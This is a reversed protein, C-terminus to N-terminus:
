SRIRRYTLNLRPQNLNRRKPLAHEHDIQMNEMLLLSGHELELNLTAKTTRNRVKFTRTEGFSLSAIFRHDLEKENDRHWGMSDDGNRYYNVLVSNFGFQCLDIIRANLDELQPPIKQGEWQVTSYRYPPGFWATLRPELHIQGFLSIQNQRLEVDQMLQEITLHAAFDPFYILKSDGEEFLVDSKM